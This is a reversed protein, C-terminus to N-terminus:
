TAFTQRLLSHSFFRLSLQESLALGCQQLGGFVEALRASGPQLDREADLLGLAEMSPALVDAGCPGLANGLRVLQEHLGKVQFVIARPNSDDRVLLDLV